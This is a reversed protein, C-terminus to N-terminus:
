VNQECRKYCRLLSVANKFAADRGQAKEMGRGQMEHQQMGSCQMEMTKLALM